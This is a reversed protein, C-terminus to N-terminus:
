FKKQSLLGTFHNATFKKIMETNKKKGTRGQDRDYRSLRLDKDMNQKEYLKHRLNEGEEVLARM